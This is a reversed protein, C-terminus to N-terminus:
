SPRRPSKPSASAYLSTPQLREDHSTLYVDHEESLGSGSPVLTLLFRGHVTTFCLRKVPSVRLEMKRSETGEIVLPISMHTLAPILCKLNGAVINAIEGVADRVEEESPLDASPFMMHSAVAEALSPEFGTLVFGDWGGSLHVIGIIPRRCGWENVSAPSIELDLMAQFLQRVVREASGAPFHLDVNDDM